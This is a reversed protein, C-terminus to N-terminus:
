TVPVIHLYQGHLNITQPLPIPRAEQADAICGMRHRRDSTDPNIKGNLVSDSCGIYECFGKAYARHAVVMECFYLAAAGKGSAERLAHLPNDLLLDETPQILRLSRPRRPWQPLQFSRGEM